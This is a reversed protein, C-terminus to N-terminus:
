QLRLAYRDSFYKNDGVIVGNTNLDIHVKRDGNPGKVIGEDEGDKFKDHILELSGNWTLDETLIGANEKYTVGVCFQPVDEKKNYLEEAKLCYIGLFYTQTDLDKIDVMFPNSESFKRLAVYVGSQTRGVHYLESVSGSDFKDVAGNFINKIRVVLDPDKEIEKKVRQSKRIYGMM